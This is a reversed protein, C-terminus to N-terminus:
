LKPLSKVLLSTKGFIFSAKLIFVKMKTVNRIFISFKDLNITYTAEFFTHKIKIKIRKIITM